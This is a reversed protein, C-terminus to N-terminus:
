SVAHKVPRDILSRLPEDAFREKWLRPTLAAVDSAPHREVRQLVDVLYVYPDVGQLRCTRLLSQFIGVYRAGIETWCFMWNKRGLAIPRIERELQNTDIPVDPYQLFVRLAKERDLAYGAAETFPNRPLLVRQELTTTLWDFFEDVIPKSYRARKELVKESEQLRPKLQAEAEYLQRIYDLATDTLEPEVDEAKLFHRRAHSWCQAHVIENVRAAYRAYPEYGDTLLVGRYGDLLESILAGSRSPSFPFVIEDRDGYIPWFYGTKMKGKAKRGARIPTEDMALVGGSTISAFQAEVIPELLDGTRHIVGTLTSRALRIGAASMRQHQRYLPLHYLFKDIVMCALLSADAISKGLVGAPAPASVLTGDKRKVVPRVTKLVVYSAPKQALRYTVKESVVEHDDDLEPPDIRIEEVPVSDDFRLTEPDVSEDNRRDRRGRRQHEAITVESGAAPDQGWEGLARQLSDSEVLRRESKSGFVQQKFWELHRTLEEVRAALQQNSEVFQQHSALLAAVDKRKMTAAQEDFTM